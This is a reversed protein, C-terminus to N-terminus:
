LRGGYSFTVSLRFGGVGQHTPFGDGNTKRDRRTCDKWYIRAVKCSRLRWRLVRSGLGIGSWRIQGVRCQFGIKLGPDLQLLHLSLM